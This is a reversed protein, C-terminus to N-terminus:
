VKGGVEGMEKNRLRQVPFEKPFFQLVKERQKSVQQGLM